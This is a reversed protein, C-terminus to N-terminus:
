KKKTDEDKDGKGGILHCIYRVLRVPQKLIFITLKRFSIRRLRRPLLSNFPWPLLKAPKTPPSPQQSSPVNNPPLPAVDQVVIEHSDEVDQSAFVQVLFLVLFLSLFNM